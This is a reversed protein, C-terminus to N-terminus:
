NNSERNYNGGYPNTNSFTPPVVINSSANYNNQANAEFNSYLQTTKTFVQIEKYDNITYASSLQQSKIQLISNNQFETICLDSQPIPNIIIPIIESRENDSKVAVASANLNLPSLSSEYLHIPSSKELKTTTNAESNTNPLIISIKPIDENASLSVDEKKETVDLSFTFNPIKNSTSNNTNKRKITTHIVKPELSEVFNTDNMPVEDSEVLVKNIMAIQADSMRLEHPHMRRKHARCNSGNAFTRSCWPCSYPRRGTHLNNHNKLDKARKFAKDCFTCQYRSVEDHVFLHMRLTRRSNLLVPCHPCQYVTDNHTDLHISLRQKTKFSKRCITCIHPRADSHRVQHEELIGKTTFARGCQDCVFPKLRQHVARMHSLLSSKSAFKSNCIECLHIMREEVPIHKKEHHKLLQQSTFRRACKCCVFPHQEKPLHTIMHSQLESERPFRKECKTCNFSDSRGHTASHRAISVRSALLKGCCCKVKARSEHTDRFHLCLAHWNNLNDKCIYCEYSIINDDVKKKKIRKPKDSTNTNALIEIENTSNNLNEEDSKNEVKFTISEHILKELISFENKPKCKKKRKSKPVNKTIKKLDKRKLEKPPEKETITSLPLYDEESSSYYDEDDLQDVQLLLAESEDKISIDDKITPNEESWNKVIIKKIPNRTSQPVHEIEISNDEVKIKCVPDFKNETIYRMYENKFTKLSDVDNHTQTAGSLTQFMYQVKECQLAYSDFNALTDSCYECINNPLEGNEQIQISLYKDVRRHCDAADQRREVVVDERACLRCWGTWLAM